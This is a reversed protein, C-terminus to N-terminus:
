AQSTAQQQHAVLDSAPLQPPPFRTSSRVLPAPPRARSSLLPPASASPARRAPTAAPSAPHRAPSFAFHRFFSNEGQTDLKHNAKSLPWRSSQRGWERSRGSEEPVNRAPPAGNVGALRRRPKCDRWNRLEQARPTGGRRPAKRQVLDRNSLSSRTRRRARPAAQQVDRRSKPQPSFACCLPEPEPYFGLLLPTSDFTIIAIKGVEQTCVSALLIQGGDWRAVAWRVRGGRASEALARRM